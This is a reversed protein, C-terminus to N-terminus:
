ESEDPDDAQPPEQAPEEPPEDVIRTRGMPADPGSEPEAGAVVPPAPPAPPVPPAPVLAAPATPYVQTGFRTLIVAGLGVMGVLAPVIWGVCPVLESIGNTILTLILTGLAASVPLAWEQNMAKALRKGIEAGIAVLGFAWAAALVFLGALSIPIGIITIAIVVLLLPAVFVTLLGLGGAILPQSVVVRSVRGTHRPAFLLVLAALGTWLFAKLLWTVLSLWASMWGVFINPTQVEPVPVQGPIVIPGGPMGTNIDGEISERNEYSVHGGIANVDGAVRASESLDAFGGIAVIDGGVAGHISVSGGLLLVDGEVRSGQELTAAGGLVFLSGQLTEGERLTFVGGLVLKDGPGGQLPVDLSGITVGGVDLNLPEVDLASLRPELAVLRAQALAIPQVRAAVQPGHMLLQTLGLAALVGLVIFIKTVAKMPYDEM